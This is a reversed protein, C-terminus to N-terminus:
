NNYGRRQLRYNATNQNTSYINRTKLTVRNQEVPKTEQLQTTQAPEKSPAEKSEIPTINKELAQEELTDIVRNIVEERKTTTTNNQADSRETQFASIVKELVEQRESREVAGEFFTDLKINAEIWANIEADSKTSTISITTSTSQTRDDSVTAIEGDTITKELM